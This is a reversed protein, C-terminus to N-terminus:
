DDKLVENIPIHKEKGFRKEFKSRNEIRSRQMDEGNKVRANYQTEMYLSKMVLNELCISCISNVNKFLQLDYMERTEGYKRGCENCISNKNKNVRFKM